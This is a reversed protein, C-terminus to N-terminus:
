GVVVNIVGKFFGVENFFKIMYMVILFIFELFKIVVINGVVFVFVIKWLFM